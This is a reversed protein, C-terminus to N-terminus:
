EQQVEEVQQVEVAVAVAVTYYHQIWDQRKWINKQNEYNTYDWM